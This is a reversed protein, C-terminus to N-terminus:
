LQQGLIILPTSLLPSAQLIDQFLRRQPSDGVVIVDNSFIQPDEYNGRRIAGLNYVGVYDKGDVKRFILVDDLKASENLGGAAAISRMLSATGVIPYQGPKTVEGDVAFHQSGSKVLNVTVEPRKIYRRDLRARIMEAIETTSKGAASITGVLPFSFDGRGDTLVEQDLDEVGFVSVHITDFAGVFSPRVANSADAATPVPLSTLLTVPTGSVNAVPQIKDACGAVAFVISLLAAARAIQKM